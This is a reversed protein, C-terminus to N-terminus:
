LLPPNLEISLLAADLSARDGVDLATDTFKITHDDGHLAAREFLEAGTLRTTSYPAPDATAYAATVAASAAWAAELSPTWLARPLAPLTRLVANPATAAHVLMVPSAHGHTAYRHVSARVLEALQAQPDGEPDPWAPFATMRSLRDRIGGEQLVLPVADLAAAASDTGPLATLPPLPQHRAAWYGLGHALEALRPGAAGGDDDLLTRVAHGVRIVPHTAGAAIGPLLRPWWEALVERWPREEIAHGFYETWDTIRRPDGLAQPWNVATVPEVPSPTEDLRTSYRDLWRHVTAAQGGRVLAEVAMPGHNSLWGKIEPGTTHLRELAEDLTGTTDM